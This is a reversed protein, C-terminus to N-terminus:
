FNSKWPPTLVDPPQVAMRFAAARVETQRDALRSTENLLCAGPPSHVRRWPPPPPLSTRGPTVRFLKGRLKGRDVYNRRGYCESWDSLIDAEAPLFASNM